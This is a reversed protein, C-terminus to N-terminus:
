AGPTMQFHTHTRAHAHTYTDLSIPPPNKTTMIVSSHKQCKTSLLWFVDESCNAGYLITGGLAM